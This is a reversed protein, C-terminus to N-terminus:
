HTTPPATKSTSSNEGGPSSLPPSASNKRKKEGVRTLGEVAQGIAPFHREPIQALSEEAVGGQSRVLPGDFGEWDTLFLRAGEQGAIQAYVADSAAMEAYRPYAAAVAPEIVALAQRGTELAEFKARIAAQQEEDKAGADDYVGAMAEAAMSLVNAQHNEIRALVADRAEPTDDAMLARVGDALCALLALQGYQRGGAVAIARRWRTRELVTPPKLLYVKDAVEIREPVNPSVLLM